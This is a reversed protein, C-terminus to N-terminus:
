ALNAFHAVFQAESHEAETEVRFPPALIDRPHWLLSIPNHAVVHRFLAPEPEVHHQAGAGHLGIQVVLGLRVHHFFEPDAEGQLGYGYRQKRVRWEDLAPGGPEEAM